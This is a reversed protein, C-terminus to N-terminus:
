ILKPFFNITIPFSLFNIPTQQWSSHATPLKSQAAVRCRRAAMLQAGPVASVPIMSVQLTIRYRLQASLPFLLSSWWSQPQFTWVLLWKGEGQSLVIDQLCFQNNEQKCKQIKQGKPFNRFDSSLHLISVCIHQPGNFRSLYKSPYKSNVIYAAAMCELCLLKSEYLM